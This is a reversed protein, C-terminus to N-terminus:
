RKRPVLNFEIVMYKQGTDKEEAPDAEIRNDHCYEAYAAFCAARGAPTQPLEVYLRYSLPVGQMEVYTTSVGAEILADFLRRQGRGRASQMFQAGDRVFPRGQEIRLRIAQDHPTENVPSAPAATAAPTPTPAPAPAPAPAPTRAILIAELARVLLFRLVFGAVMSIFGVGLGIYLVEDNDMDFYYKLLGGIVISALFLELVLLWINIYMVGARVRIAGVHVMWAEFWELISDSFIVISSFKLVATWFTGFGYGAQNALAVALFVLITTKIFTSVCSAILVAMSMQANIGQAVLAWLLIAIFGTALLGAPIYIDRTPDILKDAPLQEGKRRASVYGLAVAPKVFQPQAALSQPTLRPPRDSKPEPKQRPPAPILTPAPPVLLVAGCGCRAKKGAM